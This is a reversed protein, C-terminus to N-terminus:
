LQSRVKESMELLWKEDINCSIRGKGEIVLSSLRKIVGECSM